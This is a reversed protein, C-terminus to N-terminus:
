GIFLVQPNLRDTCRKRWCKSQHELIWLKGQGLTLKRRQNLQRQEQPLLVDADRMEELRQKVRMWGRGILIRGQKERLWSTSDRLAEDLCARGRNKLSSYQLLKCYRFGELMQVESARPLNRREDEPRDCQTQVILVPNDLGSLYRIYTLWYSLPQNRFIMNDHKYEATEEAQSIWVLLFVTRNRMFLAHTSHYIDQGGFDWLHLRIPQDDERTLGKLPSLDKVQTRSCHLKQLPTLKSLPSLISVHTASCDLEQLWRLGM